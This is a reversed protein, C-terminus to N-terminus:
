RSASVPVFYRTNADDGKAVEIGSNMVGLLKGSKAGPLPIEITEGVKILAGSKFRLGNETIVTGTPLASAVVVKGGSQGMAIYTSVNSDLKFYPMDTRGAWVVMRQAKMYGGDQASFGKYIGNQVVAAATTRESLTEASHGETKYTLTGALPAVKLVSESEDASDGATEKYVLKYNKGEQQFTVGYQEVSSKFAAFFEEKRLGVGYLSIRRKAVRDNLGTTEIRGGYLQEAVRAVDNITQRQLEVVAGKGVIRKFPTDFEIAAVSSKDVTITSNDCKVLQGETNGASVIARGRLIEVVVEQGSKTIKVAASGDLAIRAETGKVEVTMPVGQSTEIVDGYRWVSTIGTDLLMTGGVASTPTIGYILLGLMAGVVLVAAVRLVVSRIELWSTSAQYVPKELERRADVFLKNLAAESVEPAQLNMVPLLQRSMSEKAAKAEPDVDLHGELMAAEKPSLDGILYSPLQVKAERTDM